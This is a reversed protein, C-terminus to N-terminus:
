DLQIVSPSDSYLREVDDVRRAVVTRQNIYGKDTIEGDDFSPPGSLIVARRAHQSSGADVSAETLAKLIVKRIRPQRALAERSQAGADEALAILAASPFILIGVEARGDGTVVVHQAFPELVSQMKLRVTAVSVWTGTSLKFDEAVRGDFLIGASPDGPDALRGADGTRYFGESDFAKATADENNYYGPFVSPGRVRMELKGASPVFKLDVGPVPVGINGPLFNPVHVSTVVPATETAGWESAFFVPESRVRKAAGHFKQWTEPPLSAAAYFVMQLRSFFREVLEHDNEMYPLLARFGEPVNFYLTPAIAKINEISREIQNPLIGGDDIYLTGGNRLVLNFNHNAGFTHSWPLWDVVIPQARDVFRWCQAIMRQNVSLMRHTNIVLKPNGTSGSTLLYKATTDGTVSSFAKDVETTARVKLLKEFAISGPLHNRGTIVDCPFSAAAIAREYVEGDEVYVLSPNLLDLIRRLRTPDKARKSYAVSVSASVRGVLMAGLGFLAHNISNESLIVVPRQCDDKRDLLSQSIARAATLAELYTIRRWRAGPNASVREALFTRNPDAAAWHVLWEVINREYPLLAEGSRLVFSGDPRDERIINPQALNLALASAEHVSPMTLIETM